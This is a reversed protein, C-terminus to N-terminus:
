LGLWRGILPLIVYATIAVAASSLMMLALGLWNQSNEACIDCTEDGWLLKKCRPCIRTKTLRPKQTLRDVGSTPM